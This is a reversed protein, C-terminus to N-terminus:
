HRPRCADGSVEHSLLWQGMSIYSLNLSLPNLRYFSRSIQIIPADKGCRELAAAADGLEAEGFMGATGALNHAMKAVESVESDTFRGARVMAGLADITAARRSGCRCRRKRCSRLSPCPSVLPMVWLPFEAWAVPDLELRRLTRDM